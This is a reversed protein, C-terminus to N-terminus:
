FNKSALKKQEISCSNYCSSVPRALIEYPTLLSGSIGRNAYKIGLCIVTHLYNWM